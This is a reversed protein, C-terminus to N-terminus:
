FFAKVVHFNVTKGNNLGVFIGPQPVEAVTMRDLRLGTDLDWEETRSHCTALKQIPCASPYQVYVCLCTIMYIYVYICIYMYVYICIYMYVYICIYICVRIYTHTYIFLSIFYSIMLFLTCVTDCWSIVNIM